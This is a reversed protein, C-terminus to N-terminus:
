NIEDRSFFNYLCRASYVNWCHRPSRKESLYVCDFDFEFIFPQITTIKSLFNLFFNGPNSVSILRSDTQTVAAYGVFSGATRFYVKKFVYLFVKQKM